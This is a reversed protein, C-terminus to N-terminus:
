FIIEPKDWPKKKLFERILRGAQDDTLTSLNEADKPLCDMMLEWNREREDEIIQRFKQRFFSKISEPEVCSGLVFGEKGTDIYHSCFKKEFEKEWNTKM